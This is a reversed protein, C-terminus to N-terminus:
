STGLMGCTRAAAICVQRGDVWVTADQEPPHILGAEWEEGAEGVLVFVNEPTSTTRNSAGESTWRLEVVPESALAKARFEHRLPAGSEPDEFESDESDSEVAYRPPASTRFPDLVDM